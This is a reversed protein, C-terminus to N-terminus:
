QAQSTPSSSDAKTGLAKKATELIADLGRLTETRGAEILQPANSDARLIMRAITCIDFWATTYTNLQQSTLPYPISGDAFDKPLSLRYVNAIHKAEAIRAHLTVLLAGYPLRAIRDAVAAFVMPEPLAVLTQVDHVPLAPGDNSVFQTLLELTGTALRAFEVVEARLSAEVKEAEDKRQSNLMVYVAAVAGGAGIFGGLIAGTAALRDAPAHDAFFLQTFKILLLAIVAILAVVVWAIVSRLIRM